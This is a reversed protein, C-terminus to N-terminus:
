HRTLLLVVIVNQAYCLRLQLIEKNSLAIITM